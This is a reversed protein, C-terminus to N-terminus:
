GRKAPLRWRPRSSAPRCGVAYHAHIRKTGRELADAQQELLLVKYGADLAAIAIGWGMTGAGIVAICKVARPM